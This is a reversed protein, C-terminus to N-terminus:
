RVTGSYTQELSVGDYRLSVKISYPRGKSGRPMKWSCPISGVQPVVVKGIRATCQYQSGLDANNNAYSRKILFLGDFLFSFGQLWYAAGHVPRGQGGNGRFEPSFSTIAGVPSTYPTMSYSVVGTPADNPFRDSCAWAINNDAATAKGTSVLYVSFADGYSLDSRLVSVSIQNGSAKAIVRRTVWDLSSQDLSGTIGSSGHFVNLFDYDQWRSSEHYPVDKIWIQLGNGLELGSATAYTVTFTVLGRQDNAISVSAIDPTSGNSCPGIDGVPDAWVASALFGATVSPAAVFAPVGLFIAVLVLAAFLLSGVRRM